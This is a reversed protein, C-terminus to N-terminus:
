PHRSTDCYAEIYLITDSSPDHTALTSRIDVRFLSYSDSIIQPFFWISGWISIGMHLDMHSDGCLFDSEWVWGMGMPIPIGMPIGMGVTVM